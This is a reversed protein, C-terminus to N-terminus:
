NRNPLSSSNVSQRGTLPSGEQGESALTKVCRRRASVSPNGRMFFRLPLEDKVGIRPGVCIDESDLRAGEGIWLGHDAVYVPLGHFSKDIQLARSLRGPGSAVRLYDTVKKVGLADAGVIPLCSRILVAGGEGDEHAVVNFMWQTHIGYVLALGVEGYLRKALDGGRRARSSPDQRGYYAETETIMCKVVVDGLVRVLLSGLLEMAVPSPDRSYFEKSLIRPM